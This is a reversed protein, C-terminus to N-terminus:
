IICVIDQKQIQLKTEVINRIQLVYMYDVTTHQQFYEQFILPKMKETGTGTIGVGQVVPDGLRVVLLGPLMPDRRGIMPPPARRRRRRAPPPAARAEVEPQISASIVRILKPVLSTTRQEKHIFYSLMVVREKEIYDTKFVKDTWIPLCKNM